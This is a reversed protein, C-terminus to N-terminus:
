SLPPPFQPAIENFSNAKPKLFLILAELYKTANRKYYFQFLIFM